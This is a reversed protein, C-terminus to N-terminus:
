PLDGNQVDNVWLVMTRTEPDNLVAVSDVDTELSEITSTSDAAALQPAVPQTTPQIGHTLLYLAFVAVAMAAAIAPFRLVWPHDSGRNWWERLRVSWPMQVAPLRREIALWFTDFDIADVARNVNQNILDQM